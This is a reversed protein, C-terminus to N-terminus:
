TGYRLQPGCNGASHSQKLIETIETLHLPKDLKLGLTSERTWRVIGHHIKNGISLVVSQLASFSDGDVQSIRCGEACLEIMLGSAERGSDDSLRVDRRVAFRKQARITLISM